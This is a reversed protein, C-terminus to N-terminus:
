GGTLPVARALSGPPLQVAIRGSARLADGGKGVFQVVLKNTAPDIHRLPV